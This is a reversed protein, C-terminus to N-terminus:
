NDVFTYNIKRIQLVYIMSDVKRFKILIMCFIIKDHNFFKNCEKITFSHKINKFEPKM